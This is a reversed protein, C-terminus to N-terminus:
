SRTQIVGHQARPAARPHRPISLEKPHPCLRRRTGAAPDPDCGPVAVKGESGGGEGGPGPHVRVLLRLPTPPAGVSLDSVGGIVVM